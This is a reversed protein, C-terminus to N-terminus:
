SRSLADGDTANEDAERAGRDLLASADAITRVDGRTMRVGADRNEPRFLLLNGSPTEELLM